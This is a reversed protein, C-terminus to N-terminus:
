GSLLDACKQVKTLDQGAKQLCDLYKKSATSSSPSTTTSSGGSSSSGSGSGSGSSGEGATLGNLGFRSLLESLPRTQGSPAAVSQKENVGSLVLNFDITGTSLGGVSSRAEAPVDIDVRVKLGRLIRDSEGSYVDVKSSKVSREIELKEIGTIGQVKSGTSLGLSDAKSVIQNLDDVFKGVDISATIHTTKAGGVNETGVKRADKLWARPHVGLSSFTVGNTKKKTASTQTQEYGQKFLAFIDSPVSYTTGGFKVYGQKGTSTAGASFSSGSAQISLNLDFKPLKGAGDSQFPGSLKLGVPGELDKVGKLDANLDLAVRASSISKGSDFTQKLIGDVSDDSAGGSGCAAVLAAAALLLALLSIRLRTM